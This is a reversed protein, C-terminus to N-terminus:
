RKDTMYDYPRYPSDSQIIYSFYQSITDGTTTDVFSLKYDHLGPNMNLIASVIKIMHRDRFLEGSFDVDIIDSNSIEQLSYLEYGQILNSNLDIWIFPPVTKDSYVQRHMSLRDYVTATLIMDPILSIVERHLKVYYKLNIM